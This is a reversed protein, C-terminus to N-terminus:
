HGMGGHIGRMMCASRMMIIHLPDPRPADSKIADLWLGEIRYAEPEVLGPCTEGHVWEGSLAQLYHVLEHLLVGSDADPIMYITNNPAYYTGVINRGQGHKYTLETDYVIKPLPEGNYTENSNAVIFEILITSSSPGGNPPLAVCGAVLVTILLGILHKM